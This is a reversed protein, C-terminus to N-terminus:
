QNLFLQAVQEAVAAAEPATRAQLSSVLEALQTTQTAAAAAQAQVAQVLQAQALSQQMAFDMARQETQAFQNGFKAELTQVIMQVIESERTNLPGTSVSTPISTGGEMKVPTAPPTGTM